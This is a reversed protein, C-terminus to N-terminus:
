CKQQRMCYWTKAWKQGNSHREAENDYLMNIEAARTEISREVM